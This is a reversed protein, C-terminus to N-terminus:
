AGGILISRLAICHVLAPREDRLAAALQGAAYGAAMPNLSRREAELPIVRAGAAEIADRHARVRAVVAVEMGIERAARAMPLFHSAFFWDETVVFVLKRGTLDPRPRGTPPNPSRTDRGTVDPAPDPVPVLPDLCAAKKLSGGARDSPRRSHRPLGERPRAPEFPRLCSSRGPPVPQFSANM